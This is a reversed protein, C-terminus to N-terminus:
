FRYLDPKRKNQQYSKHANLTRQNKKLPYINANLNINDTYKNIYVVPIVTLQKRAQFIFVYNHYKSLRLLM